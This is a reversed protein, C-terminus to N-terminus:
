ISISAPELKIKNFSLVRIHGLLPVMVLWGSVRSRALKDAWRRLYLGISATVFSIGLSRGFLPTMWPSYLYAEVEYGGEGRHWM